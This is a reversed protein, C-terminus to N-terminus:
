EVGELLEIAEGLACSRSDLAICNEDYLNAGDEIFQKDAKEKEEKLIAIVEKLTM